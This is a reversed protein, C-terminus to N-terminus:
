VPFPVPPRDTPPGLHVPNQQLDRVRWAFAQAEKESLLDTVRTMLGQELANALKELATVMSPPLTRNAFSWLVTRLKPEAHFTVGHDICYLHGTGTESIFHGAKRDANNAVIDLVAVPWLPEAGEVIMETPDFEVNETVFRQASGPGMPGELLVTEPVLDFGAAKSLEYTLVERVALSGPEFDWLRQEGAQPKYVILGHAETEALLTVNSSNPLRGLVETIEWNNM